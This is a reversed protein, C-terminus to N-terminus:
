LTFTPFKYCNWYGLEARWRFILLLVTSGVSRIYVIKLFTNWARYSCIERSFVRNQRFLGYKQFEIKYVRVFSKLM